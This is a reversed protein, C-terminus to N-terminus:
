TAGGLIGPQVEATKVLRRQRAGQGDGGKQGREARGRGGPRLGDRRLLGRALRGIWRRGVRALQGPGAARRDMGGGLRRRVPGAGGGVAEGRRLLDHRVARGVGGARRDDRVASVGPTGGLGVALGLLGGRGIETRHGAVRVGHPAGIHAGRGLGRRGVERRGRGILRGILGRGPRALRRLALRLRRGIGRQGLRRGRRHGLRQPRHRRWNLGDRADDFRSRLRGWLRRRFRHSLRRLANDGLGLRRRGRRRDLRGGRERGLRPGLSLWVGRGCRGLRGDIRQRGTAVRQDELQM